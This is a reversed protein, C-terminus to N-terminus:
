KKAWAKYLKSIGADTADGKHFVFRYNLTLSDGKKITYDGTGDPTGKFHHLGFPNATILGYDRAHWTTPHRLNNPHDFIAIGVTNGDVQGWYDVWKANKGWLDKDKDGASNLARGNAVQDKKKANIRLYSNTRIAMTGEKTDGFTIAEESAHITIRYDIYRTDNEGVSFAMRTDDTCLVKNKYIWNHSTEIIGVGNDVRASNLKNLVIKSNTDKDGWFDIGNVDGHTFYLSTHHVHDEAENATGEKMPYDRTMRTEYPGIVPYLFPKSRQDYIYETFLRGDITVIVKGDGKSIGLQTTSSSAVTSCATHLVLTLLAIIVNLLYKSKM